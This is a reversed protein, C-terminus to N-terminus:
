LIQHYRLKVSAVFIVTWRMALKKHLLWVILAPGGPAPRHLNAGSNEIRKAERVPFPADKFTFYTM